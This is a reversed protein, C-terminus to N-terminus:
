AALNLRSSWPSQRRSRTGPPMWRTLVRGQPPYDDPWRLNPPTPPQRPGGHDDRRAHGKGASGSGSQRLRIRWRQRRPDLGARLRRRKVAVHLGHRALIRYVTMRSPVPGPCGNRGLEFAIRRAGWRPHERRLECVAPEVEPSAQHPCSNPRHAQM